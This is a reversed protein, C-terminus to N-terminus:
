KKAAQKEKWKKNMVRFTNLAGKLGIIENTLSTKKKTAQEVQKKGMAKAEATKAGAINEKTSKIYNSINKKKEALGSIKQKLKEMKDSYPSKKVEKKGAAEEVELDGDDESDSETFDVDDFDDGIIDSLSEEEDEMDDVELAGDNEEDGGLMDMFSSKIDRAFKAFKSDASPAEDMFLAQLKNAFAQYFHLQDKVPKSEIRSKVKDMVAIGPSTMESVLDEQTQKSAAKKKGKSWKDHGTHYEIYGSAELSKAKATLEKNGIPYKGMGSSSNLATLISTIEKADAENKSSLAWKVIEAPSKM